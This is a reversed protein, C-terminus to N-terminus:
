QEQAGELTRAREIAEEFSLVDVLIRNMCRDSCVLIHKPEDDLVFFFLNFQFGDLVSQTGLVYVRFDPNIEEDPFILQLDQLVSEREFELLEKGLFEQFVVENVGVAEILIDRSSKEPVAKLLFTNATNHVIWIGKLGTEPDGVEPALAQGDPLCIVTVWQNIPAPIEAVKDRNAEGECLIDGEEPSTPM